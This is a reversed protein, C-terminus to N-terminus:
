PGHLNTAPVWRNWGNLTNGLLLPSTTPPTHLNRENLLYGNPSTLQLPYILFKVVKYENPSVQMWDQDIEHLIKEPHLNGSIYAGPVWVPMGVSKCWDSIKQLLTEREYECAHNRYNISEKFPVDIAFYLFYTYCCRGYEPIDVTCCNCVRVYTTM